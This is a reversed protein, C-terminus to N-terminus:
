SLSEFYFNSLKKDRSLGRKGPAARVMGHAVLMGSNVEILDRRAQKSSQGKILMSRIVFHAITIALFAFIVALAGTIMAMYNDM